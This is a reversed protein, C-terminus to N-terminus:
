GGSLYRGFQNIDDRMFWLNSFPVNRLFQSAGEGYDGSAFTAASRAMDATWASAAGTFGTIADVANPDQPYRPQILGGTLNLGGLAQSTQLGTYFLDSYLAAVGSMDFARAVRDQPSMQDWVYDPTRLGTIMYGMGMMAVVGIMRSRVANQMMMGVTKNVNALTFSYFQLPLALFGNEIRAYGPTSPNEELGFSRAHRMPIHLVGDMLTPKDAATAAMIVNNIHTSLAVRFRETVEEGVRMSDLHADMAMDNIKNEYAPSRPELGLDSARHRTHMIEHWLVFNSWERPSAFADEPLPTVGEMRPQTWAKREWMEGEIFDRDFFITNTNADYRAAVYEGRENFRGPSAGDELVEVITVRGGNIEPVTYGGAWADTNPLILGSKPDRQWPAVAVFEADGPMMGLRAWFSRDFQTSTGAAIRQATEIMMHGGGMGTFNKAIVTVPGLLNLTHFVNKAKDMMGNNLVNWAQDDVMRLGMSGLLMELGGSLARTEQISANRIVPDFFGQMTRGLTPMDHEMVIRGMDAFAAIGSGGLYTLSAMDRLAQAVKQNMAEPDDLVRGVVRRYLIDFNKLARNIEEGRFNREEMQRRIMDAVDQRSGGFTKQFHYRPAARMTYNLMVSQPNQQIFNWVLRNPIDLQRYNLHGAQARGVYVGEVDADPREGLIRDISASARERALARDTSRRVRVWAEGDREWVYPNEVFWDTLIDELGDRDRRVAAHDWYRPFFPESSEAVDALQELELRTADLLRSRQEVQRAVDALERDDVGRRNAMQDYQAQLDRVEAELDNIRRQARERTQIIGEDILRTEWDKFYEDIRRSARMMEPTMDEGMLRRRNVEVMWSEIDDGTRGLRRMLNQVNLDRGSFLSSGPRSAQVDDAWARGIDELAVAVRGIDRHASMFVSQPQPFGRSAQESLFAADGALRAFIGKVENGWDSTMASRFPTPVAALLWDGRTRMPAFLDEGVGSEDLERWYMEDAIPRREGLRQQISERLFDAEPDGDQLRALEVRMEEVEATLRVYSEAIDEVEGLARSSRPVYSDLAPVSSGTIREARQAIAAVSAAAEFMQAEAGSRGPVRINTVGTIASGFAAASLISLGAEAGTQTPDGGMIAGQLLAESGGVALGGIMMRRALSARVLSSGPGAIPIGIYNVPNFLEASLQTLLPAHSLRERRDMQRDFFATMEQMEESSNARAYHSAWRERGEPIHDLPNFDRDVPDGIRFGRVIPENTLGLTDRLVDQFMPTPRGALNRGPSLVSSTNIQSPHITM